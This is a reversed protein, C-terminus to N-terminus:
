RSVCLISSNRLTEIDSPDCDSTGTEIYLIHRGGKYKIKDSSGEKISDYM